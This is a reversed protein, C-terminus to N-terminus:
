PQAPQSELKEAAARLDAQYSPILEVEKWPCEDLTVPLWHLRGCYRWADLAIGDTFPQGPATLVVCSHEHKTGLWAVGRHLELTRLHLTMLKVTLDDAWQFCLGRPHVGLNIFINNIIAPPTARYERALQLPYRVAAEAAARAEASDVQPSLGRLTEALAASESEQKAEPVRVTSCGTLLALAFAFFIGPRIM